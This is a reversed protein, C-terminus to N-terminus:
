AQGPNFPDPDASHGGVRHIEARRLPSVLRAGGINEGLDLDLLVLGGPPAPQDLGALLEHPTLQQACLGRSGLAIVLVYSLLEHDDVILETARGAAHTM